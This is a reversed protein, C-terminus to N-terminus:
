EPPLRPFTRWTSKLVSVKPISPLPIFSRLYDSTSRSRFLIVAAMSYFDNSYRRRRQKAAFEIMARFIGAREKSPSSLIENIDFSEKARLEQGDALRARLDRIDLRCACMEKAHDAKLTRCRRTLQGRLSKLRRIQVDLSAKAIKESAVGHRALEIVFVAMFHWERDPYHRFDDFAITLLKAPDTVTRSGLFGRVAKILAEPNLQLNRPLDIGQLMRSDRPAFRRQLMRFINDNTLGSLDSMAAFNHGQFFMELVQQERVV